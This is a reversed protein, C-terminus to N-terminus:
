SSVDLFEGTSSRHSVLLHRIEEKLSQLTTRALERNQFVFYFNTLFVRYIEVIFCEHNSHDLNANTAKSEYGLICEHSGMSIGM